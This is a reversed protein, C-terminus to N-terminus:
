VVAWPLPTGHGDKVLLLQCIANLIHSVNVGFVFFDEFFL